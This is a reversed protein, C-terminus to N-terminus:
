QRRRAAFCPPIPLFSSLIGQKFIRTFINQIHCHHKMAEPHISLQHQCILYLLIMVLMTIQQSLM